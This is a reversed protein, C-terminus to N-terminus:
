IGLQELSKHSPVNIRRLGFLEKPFYLTKRGTTLSIEFGLGKLVKENISVYDGYPYAYVYSDVGINEKILERVKQTDEIFRKQYNNKNEGKMPLVGHGYKTNEKFHHLDFSHPQIEVLGSQYMEKAQEWSFYSYRNDNNYNKIGLRSGIVFITAKINNEKLIPFGNTFNDELGDDFTIIIPKLPFDMKGKSCDILERFTITTYGNNKIYEVDEKFRETTITIKNTEKGEEVIHHYM